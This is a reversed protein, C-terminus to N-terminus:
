RKKKPWRRKCKGKASERGREAEKGYLVTEATHLAYSNNRWCFSCGAQPAETGMLPEKWFFYNGEGWLNHMLTCKPNQSSSCFIFANGSGCLQIRTATYPSSCVKNLCVQVHPQGAVGATFAHLHSRSQSRPGWSQPFYKKVGCSATLPSSSLHQRLPRGLHVRGCRTIGAGPPDQHDEKWSSRSWSGALSLPPVPQGRGPDGM